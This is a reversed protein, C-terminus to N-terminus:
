DKKKNPPQKEENFFEYLISNGFNYNLSFNIYPRSSMKQFYDTSIADLEQLFAYGLEVKIKYYKSLTTNVGFHTKLQQLNLSNNDSFYSGERYVAHIGSYSTALEFEVKDDWNYKLKAHIPVILEATINDSLKAGFGFIPMARLKGQNLGVAPGLFPVFKLNKVHIYVSYARFNPSLKSPFTAENEEANINFGHFWVGRSRSATIYIVELEGKLQKKFYDNSSLGPDSLSLKSKLFLQNAKANKKHMNFDELDVEKTRLVKVFEMKYKTLQFNTSDDIASPTLYEVGFNAGSNFISRVNFSQAFGNSIIGVVLFISIFFVKNM